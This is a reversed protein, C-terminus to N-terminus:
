HHRCPCKSLWPVDNIHLHGDVHRRAHINPSLHHHHTGLLLFKKQKTQKNRHWQFRSPSVANLPHTSRTFPCFIFCSISSLKTNNKKQREMEGTHKPVSGNTKKGRSNKKLTGQTDLEVGLVVEGDM